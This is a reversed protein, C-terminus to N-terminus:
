LGRLASIDVQDTCCTDAFGCRSNLLLCIPGSWSIRCLYFSAKCSSESYPRHPNVSFMIDNEPDQLTKLYQSDVAELGALSMVRAAFVNM